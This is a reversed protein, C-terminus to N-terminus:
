CSVELVELTEDGRPTRVTTVDGAQRGLLARAVPSVFAIRGQAPEAEDVGVLQYHREQGDEGRVAVTAGFRVEHCPSRPIVLVACGLRADLAARRQALLSLAIARQESDLTSEAQAREVGLADLERRLLSLGRETVYNPVGSPLPARPPAMPPAAPQEEKVFARSVGDIQWRTCSACSVRADTAISASWLEM